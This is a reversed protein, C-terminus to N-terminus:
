RYIRARQARHVFQLLLWGQVHAYLEDTDDTHALGLRAFFHTTAHVLEHSVVGVCTYGLHMNVEAFMPVVRGSNYLVRTRTTFAECRKRHPPNVVTLAHRRMDAKSRWVNVLVHLGCRREGVYLRFVHAPELM